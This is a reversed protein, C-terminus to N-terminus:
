KYIYLETRVVTQLGGCKLLLELLLVGVYGVLELGM